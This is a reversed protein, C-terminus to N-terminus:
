GNNNIQEHNKIIIEIDKLKKDMAHIEQRIKENEKIETQIEEETKETM